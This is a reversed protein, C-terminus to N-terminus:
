IQLGVRGAMIDARLSSAMWADCASKRRQHSPPMESKSIWDSIFWDRAKALSEFRPPGDQVPAEAAVVPPAPEARQHEEQPLRPVGKSHWRSHWLASNERHAQKSREAREDPAAAVTLQSDTAAPVDAHGSSPEQPGEADFIADVGETDLPQSRKLAPREEVLEQAMPQSEVVQTSPVVVPVDGGDPQLTAKFIPEVFPVPVGCIEEDGAEGSGDMEPENGFGDMQTDIQTELYPYIPQSDPSYIDSRKRQPTACPEVPQAMVETLPKRLCFSHASPRPLDRISHFSKQVKAPRDPESRGWASSSRVEYEMLDDDVVVQTHIGLSHLPM